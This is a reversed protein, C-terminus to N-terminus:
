LHHLSTIPPPSTEPLLLVLQDKSGTLFTPPTEPEAGPLLASTLVVLQPPLVLHGQLAMLVWLRLHHREQHLHVLNQTRLTGATERAM